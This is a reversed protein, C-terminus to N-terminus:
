SRRTNWRPTRVWAVLLILGSVGAKIMVNLHKATADLDLSGDPAFQTTAAPYVGNWNVTM